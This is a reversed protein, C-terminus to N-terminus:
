IIDAGAVRRIREKVIDFLEHPTRITLPVEALVKEDFKPMNGSADGCFAQALIKAARQRTLVLQASPFGLRVCAGEVAFNRRDLVTGVSNAVDVRRAGLSAEVGVTELEGDEGYKVTITTNFSGCDMRLRDHIELRNVEDMASHPSIYTETGLPRMKSSVNGNDRYFKIEYFTGGYERQISLCFRRDIPICGPAVKWEIVHKEFAMGPDKYIDQVFSVFDKSLSEM